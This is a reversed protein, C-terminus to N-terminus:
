FLACPTTAPPPVLTTRDLAIIQRDSTSIAASLSPDLALNSLYTGGDWPYCEGHTPNLIGNAVLLVPDQHAFSFGGGPRVETFAIVNAQLFGTGITQTIHLICILEDNTAPFGDTAPCATVKKTKLKFTGKTLAGDRPKYSAKGIFTGLTPDVMPLTLTSPPPLWAADARGAGLAGAVIFAGAIYM